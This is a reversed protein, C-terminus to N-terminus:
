KISERLLRRAWLDAEFLGNLDSSFTVPVSKELIRDIYTSIEHFSIRKDLFAEVAAENAANFIAPYAGGLKGAELGIYYAPYKKADIPLFHIDPLDDRESTKEILPSKDPYFLCHAISYVMDPRYAHFFWTGDKEQLMAHIFSEPHIVAGLNEYEIGFLHHAEMIELAKNVMSASDVTIKAGMSWTPHKLVDVITAKKIQETNFDRLAGGSATIKIKRYEAGSHMLRYISNHESDVPLLKAGYQKADSILISGAMVLSEKNALLIEKGRLIAAHCPKVGVAGVVAILIKDYDVQALEETDHLLECNLGTWHLKEQESPEATCVIYKVHFEKQIKVALEFNSHYTFGSLEFREPFNRFVRLATEGISGTAGLIVVRNKKM